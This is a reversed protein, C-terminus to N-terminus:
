QPPAAKLVEYIDIDEADAASPQGPEQDYLTVPSREVRRLPTVPTDENVSTVSAGPAAGSETSTPQPSVEGPATQMGRRTIGYGLLALGLIVFFIPWLSVGAELAPNLSAVYSSFAVVALVALAVAPVLAWSLARRKAALLYILLFVLSMGAFLTVGILLPAVELSAQVMVLVMIAMAGFPVFAWWREQRNGLYIILFALAISGFIAAAIWVPPASRLSLLVVAAIGLLTMGPIVRWWSEPGVVQSVLMGVGLLGFAAVAIWAVTDQYDAFVGLNWLLFAGGILLLVVGWLTSDRLRKM